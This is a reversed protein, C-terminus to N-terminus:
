VGHYRQARRGALGSAKELHCASGKGVEVFCIAKVLPQCEKEALPQEETMAIVPDDERNHSTLEQFIKNVPSVRPLETSGAGGAAVGM